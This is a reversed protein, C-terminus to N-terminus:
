ISPDRELLEVLSGTRTTPQPAGGSFESLATEFIKFRKQLVEPDDHFFFEELDTQSLPTISHLRALTELQPSERAVDAFGTRAMERSIGSEALMESRTRTINLGYRLAESGIFVTQLQNEIERLGRDPDLAYLLLLEETPKFGYFQEFAEQVEPGSDIVQAMGADLRRSMEAPSVDAGIQTAAFSHFDEDTAGYYSLVGYERLLTRYSDEDELYEAETIPSLGRAARAEMGAFRIKYQETQRIESAIVSSPTANIVLRTVLEYIGEGLQALWPFAAWIARVADFEAEIQPAVGGELNQLAEEDVLPISQGGPGKTVEPEGPGQPLFDYGPQQFTM